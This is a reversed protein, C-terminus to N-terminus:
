SYKENDTVIEVEYIVQHVEKQFLQLVQRPIEDSIIGDMSEPTLSHITFENGTIDVTLTGPTLTISNGLIMKAHAGPLDAKFKLMATAVPMKPKLILAAVQFGSVIIQWLLWFVYFVARTFRLKRLVDTDDEFFQQLRLKHNIIMVFAVSAVGMSIHIVDFFGSMIVWFIM